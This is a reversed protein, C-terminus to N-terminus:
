GRRQNNPRNVYDEYDKKHVRGSIELRDSVAKIQKMIKYAKSKGVSFVVAVDGVNFVEKTELIEKATM